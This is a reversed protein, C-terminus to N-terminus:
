IPRLLDQWNEISVVRMGAKLAIYALFVLRNLSHAVQLTAWVAACMAHYINFAEQLCLRGYFPCDAIIFVLVLVM